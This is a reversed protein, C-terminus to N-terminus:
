TERNTNQTSLAAGGHEALQASRPLCTHCIEHALPLSACFSGGDLTQLYCPARDQGLSKPLISLEDHEATQAFTMYSCRQNECIDLSTAPFSITNKPPISQIELTVYSLNTKCLQCYRWSSFDLMAFTVMRGQRMHLVEEVRERCDCDISCSLYTMICTSSKAIRTTCRLPRLIRIGDKRVGIDYYVGM